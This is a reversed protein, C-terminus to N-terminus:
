FEEDCAKVLELILYWRNFSYLVIVEINSILLVCISSNLTLVMIITFMHIYHQQHIVTTDEYTFSLFTGISIAIMPM